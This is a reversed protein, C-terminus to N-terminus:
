PPPGPPACPCQFGKSPAGGLSSAERPRAGGNQRPPPPPPPPPEASTPAGKQCGSGGPRQFAESPPGGLSSGGLKPGPAARQCHAGGWPAGGGPAEAGGGSAMHREPGLAARGSAGGSARTGSPGHALWAGNSSSNLSRRGHSLSHHSALRPTYRGSASRGGSGGNGHSSGGGCDVSWAGECGTGGGRAGGLATLTPGPTSTSAGM